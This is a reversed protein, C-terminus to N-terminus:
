LLLFHSETHESANVSFGWVWNRPSTRMKRIIIFMSLRKVVCTLRDVTERECTRSPIAATIAPSTQRLMCRMRPVTGRKGVVYHVYFSIKHSFILALGENLQRVRCVCSTIWRAAWSVCTLLLGYRFHKLPMLSRAPRVFSCVPFIFHFFLFSCLSEFSNFFLITRPSRQLSTVMPIGSLRCSTKKFIGFEIKGDSCDMELAFNRWKEKTEM